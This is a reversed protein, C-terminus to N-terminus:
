PKYKKSPTNKRKTISTPPLFPKMLRTAVPSITQKTTHNKVGIINIPKLGITAVTIRQRTEDAIATYKTPPILKLLVEATNPVTELKTIADIIDQITMAIELSVPKQQSSSTNKNVACGSNFKTPM